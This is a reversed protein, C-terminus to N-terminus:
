ILGQVSVLRCLRWNHWHMASEQHPYALNLKLDWCWLTYNLGITSALCLSEQTSRRQIPKDELPTLRLGLQFCNSTLSRSTACLQHSCHQGCYLLKGKRMHAKEKWIFVLTNLPICDLSSMEKHRKQKLPCFLIASQIKIKQMKHQMM